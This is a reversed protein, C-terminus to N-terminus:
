CVSTFVKTHLSNLVDTEAACFVSQETVFVLQQPAYDRQEITITHYLCMFHTPLIYSKKPANWHIRLRRKTKDSGDTLTHRRTDKQVSKNSIQYQPSRHFNTSFTWIQNFGSVFTSFKIRFNLYTENNGAVHIATLTNM